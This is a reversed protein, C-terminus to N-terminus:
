QLKNKFINNYLPNRLECVLEIIDQKREYVCCWCNTKNLANATEGLRILDDDSFSSFTEYFLMVADTVKELIDKHLYSSLVIYEKSNM